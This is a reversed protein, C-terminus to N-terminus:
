AAQAKAMSAKRGKAREGWEAGGRIRNKYMPGRNREGSGGWLRDGKQLQPKSRNRHGSESLVKVEL